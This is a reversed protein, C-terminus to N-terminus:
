PKLFCYKFYNLDFLISVSDLSEQPYCRSFDLGRAGRIQFDPLARVTRRLLEKESETYRGGAERGAHLADFLSRCGLDQQIYCMRDASVAYVKPVPLCCQAFHDALYLFSENEDKSTGVVGIASEAGDASLRYYARNSGAGALKKVDTPEKGSWEKYLQKLRYM